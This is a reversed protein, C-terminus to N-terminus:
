RGHLEGFPESTRAAKEVHAEALRGPMGDQVFDLVDAKLLGERKEGARIGGNAGDGVEAAEARIDFEAVDKAGAGSLRKSLPSLLVHPSLRSDWGYRGPM